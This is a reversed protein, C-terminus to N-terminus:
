NPYVEIYVLTEHGHGHEDGFGHSTVAYRGTAHATFNVDAPANPSIEFRIDYGHIHLEAAEDTIWRLEVPQEHTLQIVKDGVVQRNEIRIEIREAEHGSSVGQEDAALNLSLGFFLGTIALSRTFIAFKRNM